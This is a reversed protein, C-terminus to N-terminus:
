KSIYMRLTESCHDHTDAIWLRGSEDESRALHDYGTCLGFVIALKSTPLISTNDLLKAEIGFEGVELNLINHARAVDFKRNAKLTKSTFMVVEARVFRLQERTEDIAHHLWLNNKKDEDAAFNDQGARFNSFLDVLGKLQDIRYKRTHYKLAPMVMVLM